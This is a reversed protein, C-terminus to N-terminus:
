RHEMWRADVAALAAELDLRYREGLAPEVKFLKAARRTVAAWQADLSRQGPTREAM